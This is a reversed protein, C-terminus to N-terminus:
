IAISLPKILNQSYKSHIQRKNKAAPNQAAMQSNAEIRAIYDTM